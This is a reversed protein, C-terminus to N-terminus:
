VCLVFLGFSLLVLNSFLLFYCNKRTNQKVHVSMCAHVRVCVSSSVRARAGVRVCVFVYWEPLNKEDDNFAYRNYADDLLDNRSKRNICFFFFFILLLFVYACLM